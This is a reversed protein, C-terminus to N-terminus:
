QKGGTRRGMKGENSGCKEEKWVERRRRMAKMWEKTWGKRGDAEERWREEMGEKRGDM